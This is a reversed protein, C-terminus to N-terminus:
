FDRSLDPLQLNLEPNAADFRREARGSRAAVRRILEVLEDDSSAVPGSAIRRGDRLKLWVSDYGRIHIDSIDPDDLLPQIRGLGMVTDLVAETLRREADLTMTDIGGALREAAITDLQRAILERAYQREDATALAPRGDTARAIREDALRESVLRSLRQVLSIDLPESAAAPEGLDVPPGVPTGYQTIM